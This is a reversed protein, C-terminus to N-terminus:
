GISLAHRRAYAGSAGAANWGRAATSAQGGHRECRGEGQCRSVGSRRGVPILRFGRISGPSAILDTESGSDAAHTMVYAHNANRGRTMSVYVDERSTAPTVIM